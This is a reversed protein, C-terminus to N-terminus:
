PAEIQRVIWNRVFDTENSPPKPLGWSSRLESLFKAKRKRSWFLYLSPALLALVLFIGYVMQDFEDTRIRSYSFRSLKDFTRRQGRMRKFVFVVPISGGITFRLKTAM